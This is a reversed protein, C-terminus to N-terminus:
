CDKSPNPIIENIPNGACIPSWGGTCGDVYHKTYQGREYPKYGYVFTYVEGDDGLAYISAGSEETAAACIQVIKM